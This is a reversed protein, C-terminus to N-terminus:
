DKYFETTITDSLKAYTNSDVSGDAKLFQSSTGGSKVFSNGTIDGSFSGTTGVIAWRKSSNGLTKGNVNPLLNVDVDWDFPLSFERGLGQNGKRQTLGNISNMSVYGTTTNTTKTFTFRLYKQNSALSGVKLFFTTQNYTINGDFWTTWTSNDSSYEVKTNFNSFPTSYNVGLVIWGIQCAHYYGNSYLTFRFALDSTRLVQVTTNEKHIFLPRIDTTSTQWTTGNTTYQADQIQHYRLFAFHDHWANWSFPSYAVANDYGNAYVSNTSVSIRPNSPESFTKAGTITQSTSLTVYNSLKRNTGDAINDLTSPYAPLSVTGSSPTYETTGVKVKSVFKSNIWNIVKQLGTKDLFKM